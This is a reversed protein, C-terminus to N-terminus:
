LFDVERLPQTEDKMQEILFGFKRALKQPACNLFDTVVPKGEKCYEYIKRM